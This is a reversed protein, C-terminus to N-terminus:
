GLGFRHLLDLGGLAAIQLGPEDMGSLRVPDIKEPRHIINQDLPRSALSATGVRFPPFSFCM